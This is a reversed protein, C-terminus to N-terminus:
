FLLPKSIDFLVDYDFDEKKSSLVLDANYDLKHLKKYFDKILKNQHYIDLWKEEYKSLGKYKPISVTLNYIKVYRDKESM